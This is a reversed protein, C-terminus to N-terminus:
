LEVREWRVSRRRTADMVELEYALPGGDAPARWQVAARASQGPPIREEHLLVPTEIIEGTPRGDTGLRMLRASGPVWPAEGAWNQLKMSLVVWQSSRYAVLQPAKLGREISRAEVTTEVVGNGVAGSLVAGALGEQLVPRRAAALRGELAAYQARLAALEAELQEATAPRRLVEVVSDVEAADTKLVLVLRQPASTDAFRVVLPPVGKAPMAVAPKLLLHNAQVELRTFLERLGELAVADPLINTDFLVTTVVHPALRLERVSDPAAAGVSVSREIRKWRKTAQPQALAVSGVLLVSVAMALSGPHCM